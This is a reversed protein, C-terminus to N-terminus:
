KADYVGGNNQFDSYGLVVFLLAVYTMVSPAFLVHGALLAIGFCLCITLIMMIKEIHFPRIVTMKCLLALPFLLLLLGVVGYSFFLDFFDMEIMKPHEVNNGAYGMGFAKRLGKAQLFDGKTHNLYINRSSLVKGMLSDSHSLVEEQTPTNDPMTQIDLQKTNTAMPSFPILCAFLIVLIFYLWHNKLSQFDFQLFLYITYCGIILIGGAFATKTGIMPIMSMMLIFAIWATITREYRLNMMTLTLLIIVSVSLENAAYFWGSYGIKEYTYSGVSTKTFIAFWYSTGIILGIFKSAQYVFTQDLLKSKLLMIATYIMVVYYSTKLAFNVEAFVNVHPKLFINIAITLGITLFSAIYLWILKNQQKILYVFIYISLFAMMLTKLLAGISVPFREITLSTVLDLLPQIIILIFIIKKHKIMITDGLKYLKIFNM